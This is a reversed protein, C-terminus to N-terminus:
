WVRRLHHHALLSANATARECAASVSPPPSCAPLWSVPRRMVAMASDGLAWCKAATHRPPTSHTHSACLLSSSLLRTSRGVASWLISNSDTVKVCSPARRTTAPATRCRLSSTGPSSALTCLSMLPKMRSYERSRLGREEDDTGDVWSVARWVRWKPRPGSM